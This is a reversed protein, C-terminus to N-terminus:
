QASDKAIPKAEQGQSKSEPSDPSHNPLASVAGTKYRKKRKARNGWLTPLPLTKTAGELHSTMPAEKGLAARGGPAQMPSRNDHVVQAAAGRGEYVVRM